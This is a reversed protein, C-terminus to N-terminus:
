MVNSEHGDTMTVCVDFGVDTLTKMNSEWITRIKVCNINTIPTMSVIDRYKGCVSKVMVSFLTKTAENNELGYFQGNTYQVSKHVYVEDMILSVCKDEENLKSFRAKLYAKAPESLKLDSGLASTLSRLYKYHPLTLVEDRCIQKYLAPSTIEWMCTMALLCSSYRRGNPKQFVLSLQEALFGIKKNDSFKEELQNVIDLIFEEDSLTNEIIGQDYQRSLFNLLETVQSCFTLNESLHTVGLYKLSVTEERCWLEYALSPFVKMCFKVM